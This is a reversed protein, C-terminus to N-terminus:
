ATFQYVAPQPPNGSDAISRMRGDSATLLGESIRTLPGRDRVCRAARHALRSRGAINRVKEVGRQRLQAGAPRARLLVDALRRKQAYGFPTFEEADLDDRSGAIYTLRTQAAETLARRLAISADPHAGSGLGIHGEPERPDHILSLFTAVGLDSTV